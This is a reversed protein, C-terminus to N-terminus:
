QVRARVEYHHAVHEIRSWLRKAEPEFVMTQYNNGAFKKVTELSGFFNIM